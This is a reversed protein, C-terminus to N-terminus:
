EATGPVLLRVAFSFTSGQGPTSAVHIESGHLALLKRSIALGLGSGGFTAATDDSAQTFENFIRDLRDPAIGIGTDSVAVHLTIADAAIEGAQVMVAVEGAPTFKIANGVLNTVIQRLVIADGVVIPPVRESITCRLRLGKAEATPGFTAVIDEIVARLSFATRGLAYSSSEAKSLELVRNLLQLMNDSSSKLLQVHRRQRDTLESRDLLQVVGMVANLPNRIDHSLMSLLDAKEKVTQEARRRALLLEREYRKRDTSDFLTIRNIVASGEESRKQVANAVVPLIRGDACVVDFAIERAFGQMQLLPAYHTEYYIRSGVTLLTQFKTGSLLGARAQGTWDLWTQNVRAITGDPLTSLYGCPAHEYLDEVTEDLLAHDLRAPPEHAM